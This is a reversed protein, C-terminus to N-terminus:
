KVHGEELAAAVGEGKIRVLVGLDPALSFMNSTYTTFELGLLTMLPIEPLVVNSGILKSLELRPLDSNLSDLLKMHKIPKDPAKM